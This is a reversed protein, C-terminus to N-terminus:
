AKTPSHHTSSESTVATVKCSYRVVACEVVMNPVRHDRDFPAVVASKRLQNMSPPFINCVTMSSDWNKWTGSIYLMHAHM